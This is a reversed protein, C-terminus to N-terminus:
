ESLTDTSFSAGVGADYEVTAVISVVNLSKSLPSILKSLSSSSKSSFTSSCFNASFSCFSCNSLNLVKTLCFILGTVLANSIEVNETDLRGDALRIEVGLSLDLLIASQTRM